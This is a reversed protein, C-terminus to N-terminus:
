PPKPEAPQAAKSALDPLTSKAKPPKEDLTWSRKSVGLAPAEFPQGPSVGGMRPLVTHGASSCDSKNFPSASAAASPHALGPPSPCPNLLTSQRTPSVATKAGLVRQAGNPPPKHIPTQMGPQALNNPPRPALPPPRPPLALTCEAITLMLFLAWTSRKNM